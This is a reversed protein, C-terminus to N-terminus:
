RRPQAVGSAGRRAFANEPTEKQIAHSLRQQGAPFVHDFVKKELLVCMLTGPVPVGVTRNYVTSFLSWVPIRYVAVTCLLIEAFHRM